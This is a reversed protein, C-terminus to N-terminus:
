TPAALHADVHFRAFAYAQEVIDRMAATGENHLLDAPDGGPLPAVLVQLGARRAAAGARVIARAGADDGDLLLVVTPALRRLAALQRETVATGMLGVTNLIGAQHMALTDVYGEVAIVVHAKAAAARAHHAGYLLESKRYAASTPSNVYKPGRRGGLTRAGFGAVRGHLDCVPFTLRGAFRDQVGGRRRVVLGADTSEAATFGAAYAADLMAADTPAFGIAFRDRIAADIGRSTLYERANAAQPSRSSRLYAAYYAAARVLLEARRADRRRREAAQPDADEYDLDIAVRRALLEIAAPFGLGEKLQVLTLADGGADCGFCKFLQKSPSITFSPTREDHLPCRGTMRDVGTRRLVTYGGALEVLDTADRVRRVSEESFRAM